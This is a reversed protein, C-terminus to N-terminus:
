PQQSLKGKLNCLPPDPRLSMPLGPMYIEDSTQHGTNPGNHNFQHNEKARTETEATTEM